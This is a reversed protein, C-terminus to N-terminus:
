LYVHLIPFQWGVLQQEGQGTSKVCQNAHGNCKCRGGVAFDCIAYYYSRLVRNDGFIEDGFTNM